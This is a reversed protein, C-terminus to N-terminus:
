GHIGEGTGYRAIVEGEYAILAHWRSEVDVEPALKRALRIFMTYHRAESKMLEHYFTALEPDNIHKHLVKFRECSRAEIMASLLLRDVLVETRSRGAVKGFLFLENVYSDKRERGLVFKRKRLLAHVRQFHEMEEQALASMKDVLEPYEPFSVILSIASSAAKQECYAHDTLIAEINGQVVNHVWHPDTKLKLRFTSM